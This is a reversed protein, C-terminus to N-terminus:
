QFFLSIAHAKYVDHTSSSRTQACARQGIACSTAYHVLGAGSASPARTWNPHDEQMPGGYTYSHQIALAILMKYIGQM